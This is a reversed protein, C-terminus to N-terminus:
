FVIGKGRLRIKRGPTMAARAVKLPPPPAVLESGSEIELGNSGRKGYFRREESTWAM